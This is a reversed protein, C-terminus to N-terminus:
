LPAEALVEATHQGLDPARGLTEDARLVPPLPPVPTWGMGDDARRMLGRAEVQPDEAVTQPTPNVPAAPVDAGSFLELWYDRSQRSIASALRRRIEDAHLRRRAHVALDEDDVWDAWGLCDCLKRWFKDELIALSLLLGDAAAFTGYTPEPGEDPAVKVGSWFVAVDLMALDLHCGRGTREREYLAAVISLAATSGSGLDVFPVGIQGEAAVEMAGGAVGLYNLDHGALDRYPGTSGYGSLSCYVLEPRLELLQSYDAGLRATTGPRFGEVLVDSRVVLKRLHDRDQERKLDLVVSRKGANVREFMPPDIERAPDGAPPEVKVVDAGLEALLLTAYPAPLQQSLDLVRIGSLPRGHLSLATM